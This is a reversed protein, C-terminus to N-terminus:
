PMQFQCCNNYEYDGEEGYRHDIMPNQERMNIAMGRRSSEKGQILNSMESQSKSIMRLVQLLRSTLVKYPIILWSNTSILESFIIADGMTVDDPSQGIEVAQYM